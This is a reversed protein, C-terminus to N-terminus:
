IRRYCRSLVLGATAFGALVLASPEPVSIAAMSFANVHDQMYQSVIQMGFVTPYAVSVNPWVQPPLTTDVQASSGDHFGITTQSNESTDPDAIGGSPSVHFLVQRYDAFQDGTASNPDLDIQFIVQKGPTLGTFNYTLVRSHVGEDLTDPSLLTATVGPSESVIRGWDFNMQPDGITMSFTTLAASGSGHNAITSTNELLLYPRNRQTVLTTPTTWSAMM